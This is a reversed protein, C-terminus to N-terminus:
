QCRPGALERQRAVEFTMFSDAMMARCCRLALASQSPSVDSTKSLHFTWMWTGCPAMGLSPGLAPMVMNVASALANVWRLTRLCRAM